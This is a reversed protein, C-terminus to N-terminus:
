FVPASKYEYTPVERDESIREREVIFEIFVISSTTYNSNVIILYMSM